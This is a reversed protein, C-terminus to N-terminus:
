AREYDEFAERLAEGAETKDGHRSLIVPEDAISGWRICAYEHRSVKFRITWYIVQTLRGGRGRPATNRYRVPERLSFRVVFFAEGDDALRPAPSSM